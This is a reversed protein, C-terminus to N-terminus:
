SFYSVPAMLLLDFHPKAAHIIPGDTGLHWRSFSMSTMESDIHSYGLLIVALILV